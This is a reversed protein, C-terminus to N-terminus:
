PSNVGVRCGHECLRLTSSCRVKTTRPVVGMCGARDYRPSSRPTTWDALPEPPQVDYHGYILLIPGGPRRVWEAYVLPHGATEIIRTADLGISQLLAALWEACRRVDGARQPQASVSPFRVFEMLDAVFDRAHATAWSTVQEVSHM